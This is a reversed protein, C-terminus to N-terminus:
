ERNKCSSRGFRYGTYQLYLACIIIGIISTRPLDSIMLGLLIYCIITIVAHIGDWQEEAKDILEDLSDIHKQNEKKISM